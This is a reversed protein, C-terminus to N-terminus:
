GVSITERTNRKVPVKQYNRDPIPVVEDAKLNPNAKMAQRAAHERNRAQGKWVRRLKMGKESEVFVRYGRLEGNGNEGM